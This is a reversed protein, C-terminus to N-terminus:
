RNLVMSSLLTRHQFLEDPVANPFGPLNSRLFQGFGRVGTALRHQIPVGSGELVNFFRAGPLCDRVRVRHLLMLLTQLVLIIIGLCQELLDVSPDVLEIILRDIHSALLAGM